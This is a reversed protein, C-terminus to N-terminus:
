YYNFIENLSNCINNNKNIDKNAYGSGERLHFFVNLYLESFFKNDKNRNDNVLFKVFNTNNLLNYPLETLNWTTSRLHKIFFINDTHLNDINKQYRITDTLPFNNTLNNNVILWKMMMGGTDAGNALNWNLINTHQINKSFFCLGPWIYNLIKIYDYDVNRQQLVIATNYNYFLSIDFYDILFIDNDIYLYDDPNDLQYKLMFNLVSAHRFSGSDINIHFDNHFNICKINLENCLNEVKNKMSTDFYNTYEPFNKTDNFVIYEFDNKFFKKLSFYQIKIFDTNVVSTIIKM